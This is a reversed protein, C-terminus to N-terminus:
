GGALVEVPVGRAALQALAGQKAEAFCAKASPLNDMQRSGGMIDCVAEAANNIRIELTDRDYANTLDLDAYSIEIMRTDATRNVVLADDNAMAPTALALGLISAVLIRAGAPAKRIFPM